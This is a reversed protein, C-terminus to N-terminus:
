TSYLIKALFYIDRKNNRQNKGILLTYYTYHFSAIEGAM